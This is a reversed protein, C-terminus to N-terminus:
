RSLPQKREAKRLPIPSPTTIRSRPMFGGPLQPRTQAKPPAVVDRVERIGNEVANRANYLGRGPASTVNFGRAYDPEGQRFQAVPVTSGHPDYDGASVLGGLSALSGTVAGLATKATGKATEKLLDQWRM